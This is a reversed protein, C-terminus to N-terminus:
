GKTVRNRVVKPVVMSEMVADFREGDAELGDHEAIFQSMAKPDTQAQKLSTPTKM